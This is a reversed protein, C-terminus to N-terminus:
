VLDNLFVKWTYDFRDMFILAGNIISYIAGKLTPCHAVQVITDMFEALFCMFVNM